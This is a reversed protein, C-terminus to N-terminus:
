WDPDYEDERSPSEIWGWDESTNFTEAQESTESVNGDSSNLM